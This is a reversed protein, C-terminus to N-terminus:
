SKRLLRKRATSLVRNPTFTTVYAISAYPITILRNPSEVAINRKGSGTEKKGSEGMVVGSWRVWVSARRRASTPFTM